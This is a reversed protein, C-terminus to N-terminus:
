ASDLEVVDKPDVGNERCYTVYEAQGKANDEFVKWGGRTLSVERVNLGYTNMLRRNPKFLDVATVTRKNKKKHTYIEYQRERLESLVFKELKWKISQMLPRQSEPPARGFMQRVGGFGTGHYEYMQLALRIWKSHWLADVIMMAIQRENEERFEIEEDTEAKAM